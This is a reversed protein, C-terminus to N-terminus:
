RIPETESISTPAAATGAAALGTDAANAPFATPVPNTSAIGHPLGPVEPWVLEPAVPVVVGDRIYLRTWSGDDLTQFEVAGNFDRLDGDPTTAFDVIVQDLAASLDMETTDRDGEHNVGIAIACPGDSHHLDIVFDLDGITVQGRHDVYRLHQDAKARDFEVRAALEDRPIPPDFAIDSDGILYIM